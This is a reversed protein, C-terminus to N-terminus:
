KLLLGVIRQRAVHKPQPVMGRRERELDMDVVALGISILPVCSWVVCTMVTLVTQVADPYGHMWISQHVTALAEALNCFVEVFEVLLLLRM